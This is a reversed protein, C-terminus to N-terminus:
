VKSFLYLMCLGYLVPFCCTRRKMGGYLDLVSFITYINEILTIGRSMRHLLFILALRKMIYTDWIKELGTLTPCGIFVLIIKKFKLYHCHVRPTNGKQPYRLCPVCGCLRDCVMFFWLFVGDLVIFYFMCEVDGIDM